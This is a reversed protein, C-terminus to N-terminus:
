APELDRPCVFGTLGATARDLGQWGPGPLELTALAGTPYKVALEDRAPGPRALALALAHIGPNHAIVLVSEVTAPLERLRILLDVPGAGYLAPEIAIEAGGLAPAIRDLTERTRRASSCLVLAPAIRQEVLHRRLAACAERGRAGLPREHDTVRADDWNSKAHRLLHLTPM